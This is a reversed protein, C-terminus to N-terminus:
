KFIQVWYYEYDNEGVKKCFVSTATINGTYTSLMIANHDECDKLADFIDQASTSEACRALNEASYSYLATPSQGAPTLHEWYYSTQYGRIDAKEQLKSHVTLETLGNEARYANVLAALDAAKETDYHGIVTTTSGGALTITYVADGNTLELVPIEETELVESCTTCYKSKSGVETYTPELTVVWDGAIHGTAPIDDSYTDDCGTCKYTVSGAETCSAGIRSIEEYSHTHEQPIEEQEKNGCASCEKYRINGSVVWEGYTHDIIPIEETELETSCANCKRVREGKSTCSAETRVYWTGADHETTELTERKTDGCACEFIVYGATSCTADQRDIEEVYNHTHPLKDLVENKLLANCETCYQKVSGEALDTAPTTIEEGATHGTAPINQKVTEDCDKCKYVAYGNETCAAEQTEVLETYSHAEKAITQTDLVVNCERCRLVKLGEETCSAAKEVKWEDATHELMPIAEVQVDTCKECSKTKNGESHCTAEIVVEWEGYAHGTAPILIEEGVDAGCVSCVKVKKGATTCTAETIIREEDANHAEPNVAIQKESNCNERFCRYIIVEECATGQREAERYDHRLAELEETRTGQCNGCTYTKIGSSVCTPETTIEGDNWTHEKTTIEEKEYGCNSCIFYKCGAETCTAEIAEKEPNEIYNHEKLALTATQEEHNCNQCIKYVAGRQTCTAEVTRTKDYSHGSAEQETSYTSGCNECRYNTIGKETCTASVSDVIKYDHQCVTKAIPETALISNCNICFQAKMGEKDYTAVEVIVWDGASHLEMPIEQTFSYGCECTLEEVGCETCSAEKIIQSAYVHTHTEKQEENEPEEPSTTESGSVLEEVSNDSVEEKVPVTSEVMAQESIVPQSDNDDTNATGCGSLFGLMMLAVLVSKTIKERM